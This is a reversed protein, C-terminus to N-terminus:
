RGKSLFQGARDRLQFVPQLLVVLTGMGPLRLQDTAGDGFSLRERPLQREERMYEQGLQHLRADRLKNRQLRCGRAALCGERM